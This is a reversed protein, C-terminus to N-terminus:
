DKQAMMEGILKVMNPQGTHATLGGDAVVISGTMYSAEDSALFVAVGAMEEARGGRGLPITEKWLDEARTNSIGGTLRTGLILGPCFANVRIHDKGHDIAMARTYQIVAGKSANYSTHGYDAALGSISATNVIVGGGAAKMHPIVARCAYMVATVNIRFVREWDEDQIDPTEGLSGTGANNYLMDIRGHDAIVKAVMAEVQARVTMDCVHNIIPAGHNLADADRDNAIVTAGSQALKVAIAAGIGSAAGTVIAVKGDFGAM